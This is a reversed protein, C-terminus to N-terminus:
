DYWIKDTMMFQGMSLVGLTEVPGRVGPGFSWLSWGGGVSQVVLVAKAFNPTAGSEIDDALARLFAPPNEQMAPEVLPVVKLDIPM